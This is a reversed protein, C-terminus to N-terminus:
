TTRVRWSQYGNGYYNICRLGYTESHDIVCGTEQNKLSFYGYDASYDNWIIYWSQRRSKDCAVGILQSQTNVEVCKGTAHNKIQRTDDSWRQVWWKQYVGGNPAIARMGYESHDLYKGTQFNPITIPVAEETAGATGTAAITLLVGATATRLARLFRV